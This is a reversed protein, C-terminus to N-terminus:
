FCYWWLFAVLFFLASKKFCSDDIFCRLSVLNGTTVEEHASGDDPVKSEDIDHIALYRNGSDGPGDSLYGELLNCLVSSGKSKSLGVLFVLFLSVLVSQGCEIQFAPTKFHIAGPSSWATRTKATCPSGTPSTCVAELASWNGQTPFPTQKMQKCKSTLRLVQKPSTNKIHEGCWTMTKM